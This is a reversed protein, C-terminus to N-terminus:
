KNKEKVCLTSFADKLKNWDEPEFSIHDDRHSRLHSSLAKKEIKNIEEVLKKREDKAGAKLLRISRKCDQIEDRTITGRLEKEEELLKIQKEFGEIRFNSIIM